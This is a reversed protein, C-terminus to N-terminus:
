SLQTITEFSINGACWVVINGYAGGVEICCGPSNPIQWSWWGSGILETWTNRVTAGDGYGMGMLLLRGGSNSRNVAVLVPTQSAYYIRAYQGDYITYSYVKVYLGDHSHTSPPYSVPKNLINNWDVSNAVNATAAFYVSQQGINDTTIIESLPKIGGGALLLYTDGALQKKYGEFSKM